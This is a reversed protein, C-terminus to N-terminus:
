EPKGTMGMRQLRLYAIAYSEIVLEITSRKAADRVNDPHMLPYGLTGEQIEKLMMVNFASPTIKGRAWRSVAVQSVGIVRALDSQSLGRESMISRVEEPSISMPVFSQKPKIRNQIFAREDDPGYENM